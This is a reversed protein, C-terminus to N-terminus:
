RSRARVHQPGDVASLEYEAIASRRAAQRTTGEATGGLAMEMTAFRGNVLVLDAPTGDAFSDARARGLVNRPRERRSSDRRDTRM